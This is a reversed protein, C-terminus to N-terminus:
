LYAIEIGQSDLLELTLRDALQEYDSEVESYCDFYMLGIERDVQLAEEYATEGTRWQELAEEVILNADDSFGADRVCEFQRAEIEIFEPSSEDREEMWEGYDEALVAIGSSEQDAISSSWTRCGFPVSEGTDPDLIPGSSLIQDGIPGLAESAASEPPGQSVIEQREREIAVRGTGIELVRARGELGPAPDILVTNENELPEIYGSLGNYRACETVRDAIDIAAVQRGTTLLAGLEDATGQWDVRSSSSTCGLVSVVAVAAALLPLRKQWAHCSVLINM